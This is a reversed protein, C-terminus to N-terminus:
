FIAQTKSISIGLADPSEFGGRPNKQQQLPKKESKPKKPKKYIFHLRIYVLM